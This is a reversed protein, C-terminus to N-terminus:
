RKSLVQSQGRRLDGTGRWVFKAEFLWFALSALILPTGALMAWWPVESAVLVLAVVYLAGHGIHVLVIETILCWNLLKM